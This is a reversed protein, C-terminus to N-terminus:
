QLSAKENLAWGPLRVRYAVPVHSQKRPLRAGSPKIRGIMGSRCNNRRQPYDIMLQM